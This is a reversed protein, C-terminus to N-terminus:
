QVRTSANLLDKLMEEPDQTSGPAIIQAIEKAIGRAIRVQLTAYSETAELDQRSSLDKVEIYRGTRPDKGIGDSWLFPYKTAFSSLVYRESITAYTTESTMDDALHAIKASLSGPALAGAGDLFSLLSAHGTKAGSEFILDAQADTLGLSSLASRVPAEFGPDREQRHMIEYRKLADHLLAYSCASELDTQAIAGKALLELGIIRAAHAVALSHQGIRTFDGNEAVGRWPNTLPSSHTPHVGTLELLGLEIPFAREIEALHAPLAPRPSSGAIPSVSPLSVSPEQRSDRGHQHLQDM